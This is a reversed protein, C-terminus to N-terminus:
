LKNVKYISHGGLWLLNTHVDSPDTVAEAAAEPPPGHLLASSSGTQSQSSNLSPSSGLRQVKGWSHDKIPQADYWLGIIGASPLHLSSLWFTMKRCLSDM